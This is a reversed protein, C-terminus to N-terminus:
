CIEALRRLIHNAALTAAVTELAEKRISDKREVSVIADALMGTQVRSAWFFPSNGRRAYLDDVYNKGHSLSVCRRGLAAIELGINYTAKTVISDARNILGAIDREYEIVCVDARDKSRGRLESCDNGAVWLLRKRKRPISDFASLVLDFTPEERESCTGQLVLLYWGDESLAAPHDRSLVGEGKLQRVLPGVYEVRNRVNQPEPFVGCRELFVVSDAHSLSSVNPDSESTFWHTVYVTPLDLSKAATLAGAEEHSVVLHPLHLRLVRTVQVVVDPFGAHASLDLAIIPWDHRRFTDAGEAYSVWQIALTARKAIASGIAMDNTAHGRGRGRSVYVIDPRSVFECM